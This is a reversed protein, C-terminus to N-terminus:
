IICPANQIAKRLLHLFIEAYLISIELPYLNGICDSKKPLATSLSVIYFVAIGVPNRALWHQNQKRPFNSLLEISVAYTLNSKNHLFLDSQESLGSCL